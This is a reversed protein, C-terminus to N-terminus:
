LCKTAHFVWRIPSLELGSCLGTNSTNVLDRPRSQPLHCVRILEYVPGLGKHSYLGEKFGLNWRAENAPDERRKRALVTRNFHVVLHRWINAMTRASNVTRKAEKENPGLSVRYRMRHTAYICLFKQCLHVAHRQKEGSECLDSWIQDPDVVTKTSSWFRNLCILFVM